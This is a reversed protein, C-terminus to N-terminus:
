KTGSSGSTFSEPDYNSGIYTMHDTEAVILRKKRTHDQTKQYLTFKPKGRVNPRLHGNSFSVTTCVLLISM